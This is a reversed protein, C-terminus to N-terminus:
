PSESNRASFGGGGGRPHGCYHSDATSLDSKQAEAKSFTYIVFIIFFLSLYSFLAGHISLWDCIDMNANQGVVWYGHFGSGQVCVNFCAKQIPSCIARKEFGPLINRERFVIQCPENGSSGTMEFM